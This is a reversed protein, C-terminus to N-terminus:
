ESDVKKEVKYKQGKITLSVLGDLPIARYGKGDPINVDYVFMLDRDAANYAPGAGRLYKKVNKRAVMQRLTGDTRKIFEVSFFQNDDAQAVMIAARIPTITKVNQM